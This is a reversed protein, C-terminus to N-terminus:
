SRFESLSVGEEATKRLIGALKGLTPEASLRQFLGHDIGWTQAALKLIFGRTGPGATMESAIEALLGAKAGDGVTPIARGACAAAIEQLLWPNRILGRAPAVGDVGASAMRVADQWSFLDGSGILPVGPLLQRATELRAHGGAVQNYLEKVTRFHIIVFDPAAEKVLPLIQEMEDPHVIGTRLKVSVGTEPVAERIALLADRIWMPRELCRGGGGNNFVRPVPCACNLDIGVAGLAAANKAAGALLRWDTGMLQVVVPLGSDFYVALRERMRVQRPVGTSIRIFPSIWCPVLGRRSLVKVFAGESVGEMPGPMIRNPLGKGSRFPLPDLWSAPPLQTGQEAEM